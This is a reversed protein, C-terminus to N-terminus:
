LPLWSHILFCCCTPLLFQFTSEYSLFHDQVLSNSTCSLAPHIPSITLLSTKHQHIPYSLSGLPTECTESRVNLHITYSKLLPPCLFIVLNWNPHALNLAKSVHLYLYRLTPLWIYILRESLLNPLTYLSYIMLWNKSHFLCGWFWQPKCSFVNIIKM